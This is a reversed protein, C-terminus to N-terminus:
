KESAVEPPDRSGLVTISVREGGQPYGCLKLEPTFDGDLM